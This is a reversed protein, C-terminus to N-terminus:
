TVHQYHYYHYHHYHRHHYHYKCHRLITFYTSTYIYNTYTYTSMFMCVYMCVCATCFLNLMHIPTYTKQTHTLSYITPLIHCHSSHTQTFPFPTHFAPQREREREREKVKISFISQTQIQVTKSISYFFHRNFTNGHVLRKIISLLFQVHFFIISFIYLM